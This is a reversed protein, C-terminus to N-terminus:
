TPRFMESKSTVNALRPLEPGIAQVQHPRCRWGTLALVPFRLAFPSFLASLSAFPFSFAKGLEATQPETETSSCGVFNKFWDFLVPHKELFEQVLGILEPASIIGQSFLNLCRLFNDYVASPRLVKKIQWV